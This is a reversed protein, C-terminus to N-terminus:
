QMYAYKEWDQDWHDFIGQDGYLNNNDTVVCVIPTTHSVNILFNGTTIDSPLQNTAFARARICSTQFIPLSDTYLPDNLTPVNGNTTYHIEAAPNNIDYITLWQMTNYVGSNLSFMPAWAQGTCIGTAENMAGDTPTQFLVPIGTGNPFLGQSCDIAPCAIHLSDELVGSPQILYVTEGAPSLNFDTHFFNGANSIFQGTLENVSVNKMEVNVYTYLVADTWVVDWAISNIPGATLGAAQLEAATYLMQNRAGWYWNGYPAPYSTNGNNDTGTGITIGNLQINPRMNHTEGGYASCSADSGDQYNVTASTYPTTSQNFVSNTIYGTNSYSCSNVVINSVGDWIFPQFFDHQNWGVQPTYDTANVVPVFPPSYFRNKGSCFVILYEGPNLLFHSFSWQQPASINTTLSYDYLDVVTSGSNFLEIWDKAEGDEDYLQQFNRNSGENIVIQSHITLTTMVFCITISLFRLSLYKM